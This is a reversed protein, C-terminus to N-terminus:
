RVTCCSPTLMCRRFADVFSINTAAAEQLAEKLVVSDPKMEFGLGEATGEVMMHAQPNAKAKKM